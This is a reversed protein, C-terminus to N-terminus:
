FEIRLGSGAPKMRLKVTPLWERHSRRVGAVVLFPVMLIGSIAGLSIAGVYEGTKDDCGHCPAFLFVLDIALGTVAVGFLTGTAITARTLRRDRQVWVPDRRPDDQALEPKSPPPTDLDPPRKYRHDQWMTGSVALALLSAGFVVGTGILAGAAPSGDGAHQDRSALVGGAIGMGAASAGFLGLASFTATRLKRDRTRWRDELAPGPTPGQVALAPQSAASPAPALPLATAPAARSTVPAAALSAALLVHCGRVRVIRLPVRAHGDGDKATAHHDHHRRGNNCM